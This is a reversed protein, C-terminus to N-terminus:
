ATIVAGATRKSVLGNTNRATVMCTLTKGASGAPPTFSKLTAGAIQAGDIEWQYSYTPAPTGTWTGDSCTSSVGVQPTGLIAPAAVNEPVSGTVALREKSKLWPGVSVNNVVEQRHMILNKIRRLM